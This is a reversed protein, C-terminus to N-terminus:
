FTTRGTRQGVPVWSDTMGHGHCNGCQIATGGEPLSHCVACDSQVYPADPALHHIYEWRNAEGTGTGAELDDPHCQKCANGMADTSVITGGQNEGNIRSRLMMINESGHSEHCDLCSLVFNSKTSASTAYPERFTDAGDRALSGHKNQNLGTNTWNILKLNRNLTTSFLITSSNHCTACFGVYNPTNAGNADGVGAPERNIGISADTFPAEYGTPYAANMTENEGWLPSSTGPLSIASLLPFGPQGNDWNRKALHSNHCGSCPNARKAFWDKYTLDNILFNWIDYLNHYSAQNFAALISQPGQGSLGGGFSRSYDQNTVQPGSNSNHCFFCFNSTELYPNLTNETDFSEAFLTHPSPAGTPLPNVGDLSAHTEHCHECNGPKFNNFKTDLSSRNVGYVSNGHASDRYPGSFASTTSFIVILLLFSNVLWGQKKSAANKM